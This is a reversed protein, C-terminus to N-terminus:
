KHYPEGKSIRCARYLQELFIVRMLQHPFTLESFSIKEQCTELVEPHLGLSGGIVFALHSEGRVGLEDLHQSFGVSDFSKGKIALAIRYCGKPFAELIRKGEKALIAQEEAPSLNERTPEDGLEVLKLDVYAGLRKEYESVAERYFSEKIKGVCILTIKM